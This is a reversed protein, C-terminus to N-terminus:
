KLEVGQAKAVLVRMDKLHAQTAALSGASGSGESPRLGCQWLSDMLEQAETDRLTLLPLREVNMDDPKHAVLKVPEPIYIVGDHDRQKFFLGLDNWPSTKFIRCSSNM